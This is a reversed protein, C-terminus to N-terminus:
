SVLEHLAPLSFYTVSKGSGTPLVALVDRNQLVATILQEQHLSLSFGWSLRGFSESVSLDASVSMKGPIDISAM